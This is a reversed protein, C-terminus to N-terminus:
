RESRRQCTLAVRQFYLDKSDLFAHIRALSKTEKRLSSYFCMEDVKQLTRCREALKASEGLFKAYGRENISVRPTKALKTKLIRLKRVFAPQLFKGVLRQQKPKWEDAICVLDHDSSVFFYPFVPHLPLDCGESTPKLRSLCYQLSTGGEEAVLEFRSV